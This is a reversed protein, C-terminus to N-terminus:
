QIEQEVFPFLEGRCELYHSNQGMVRISVAKLRPLVRSGRCEEYSRCYQDIEEKLVYGGFSFFGVFNIFSRGVNVFLASYILKYSKNVGHYLQFVALTPM